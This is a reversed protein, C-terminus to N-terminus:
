EKGGNFLDDITPNPPPLDALAQILDFEKKECGCPVQNEFFLAEHECKPPCGFIFGKEDCVLDM